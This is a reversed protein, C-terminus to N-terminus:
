VLTIMEFGVVGRSIVNYTFSGKFAKPSFWPIGNFLMHRHTICESFCLLYALVQNSNFLMNYESFCLLYALVQNALTQNHQQQQTAAQQQQAQQQAAQAQQAQAAQQQQVQQQFM